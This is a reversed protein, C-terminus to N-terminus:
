KSRKKKEVKPKGAMAIMADRITTYMGPLDDSVWYGYPDVRKFVRGDIERLNPEMRDWKDYGNM